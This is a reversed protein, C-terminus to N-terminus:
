DSLDEPVPVEQLRQIILELDSLAKACFQPDQVNVSHVVDAFAPNDLGQAESLIRSPVLVWNRRTRDLTWAVETRWDRTVEEILRAVKERPSKYRFGMYPVQRYGHVPHTEAPLSFWALDGFRLLAQIAQESRASVALDEV